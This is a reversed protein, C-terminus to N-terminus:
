KFAGRYKQTCIKCALKDYYTNKHELLTCTGGPVLPTDLSTFNGPCKTSGTTVQSTSVKIEGLGTFFNKNCKCCSYYRMALVRM